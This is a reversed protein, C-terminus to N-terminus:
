PQKKHPTNRGSVTKKTGESEAEQQRLARRRAAWGPRNVQPVRTIALADAPVDETVTAGAAIIAGEGITVPAILQTDSGLFVHDGIITQYKNWGDFNCTITGAGINVGKGVRADGLYSLHNAKSGEGLETKKMEVFNGVKANRRLVVGPRLHVFPGIATEDEVLSDKLVCHDLIEVRDGIVCRTIRSGAHIVTDEGIITTGELTVNPHLVTDRGITVEADIWTSGPDRMTVGAELWRERIRQRLIREAEALQTRTNIGLGEEPHPLPVASVTFGQDVAMQVIDTLYYEGQANRPDLKDLAPFLFSGEVVYTGVNIERVQREDSSADKEEVIKLVPKRSSGSQGVVNGSRIVRGYGSADDVIATLVSVAAHQEEHVRLLERVTRESLLPTDGNLILYRDPLVKAKRQFVPRSQLVAHGTGLQRPQEVVVIAPDKETMAPFQRELAARVETGQYGVVVAVGRDALRRGLDVIHNVMPKGAVPHLVKALKSQMRKGLGAAMVIVALGPVVSSSNRHAPNM